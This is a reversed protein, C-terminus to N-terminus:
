ATRIAKEIMEQFDSGGHSSNGLNETAYTWVAAQVEAPEWGLSRAVHNITAKYPVSITKSTVSGSRKASLGILQGMWTDLTVASLDGSVNRAFMATKPGLTDFGESEIARITSKRIGATLGPVSNVADTANDHSELASMVRITHRVNMWVPCQPSTAGMVKCFTIWDWGRTLCLASLDRRADGYWHRGHGGRIAATRIILFNAAKKAAALTDPKAPM